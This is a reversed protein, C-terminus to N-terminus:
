NYSLGKLAIFIGEKIDRPNKNMLDSQSMM